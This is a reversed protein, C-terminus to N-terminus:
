ASCPLVPFYIAFPQGLSAFIIEASLTTLLQGLAQAILCKM